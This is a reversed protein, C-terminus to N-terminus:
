FGEEIPDEKIGHKILYEKASQLIDISSHFAGIGVNCPHCLLGRLEQTTHCHDVHLVSLQPKGSPLNECIECQGYCSQVADNYQDLTIGYAQRLHKDKNYEPTNPNEKHRAKRRAVNEPKKHRVSDYCRKCLGKSHVIGECGKISCPVLLKKPGNNAHSKKTSIKPKNDSSM